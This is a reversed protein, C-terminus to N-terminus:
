RTQMFPRVRTAFGKLRDRFLTRLQRDIKRADGPAPVGGVQWCWCRKPRLGMVVIV